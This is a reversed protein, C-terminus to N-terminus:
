VQLVPPYLHLKIFHVSRPPKDGIARDFPLAPPVQLLDTLIFIPGSGPVYGAHGPSGNSPLDRFLVSETFYFPSASSAARKKISHVLKCNAFTISFVRLESSVIFQNREGFLM